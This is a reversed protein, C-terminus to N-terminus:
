RERPPHRGHLLWGAEEDALRETSYMQHVLVRGDERLVRRMEGFAQGVAPVHVLVERCWVLDLSADGAPLSEAVGRVFRVDSALSPDVRAAAALAEGCLQLHREVPDLGLVAFGFRRALEITHQGEGCGVDIVRARPALGLSSVVDYLLGPGRPHLSEDLAAQFAQEVRPYEDYYEALSFRGDAAM